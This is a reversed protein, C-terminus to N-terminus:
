ARRPLGRESVWAVGRIAMWALTLAGYFAVLGVLLLFM